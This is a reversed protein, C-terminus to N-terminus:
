GESIEAWAAEMSSVAPLKNNMLEKRLARIDEATECEEAFRRALDPNIYYEQEVLSRKERNKIGKVWAPLILKGSPSDVQDSGSGSGSAPQFGASVPYSGPVPAIGPVADGIYVYRRSPRGSPISRKIIEEIKKQEVLEKLIPALEAAKVRVYTLINTYPVNRYRKIYNEVRVLLSSGCPNRPPPTVDLDPNPTVDAVELDPNGPLSPFTPIGGGEAAESVASVPPLVPSLAKNLDVWGHGNIYVLREQGRTALSPLQFLERLEEITGEFKVKM